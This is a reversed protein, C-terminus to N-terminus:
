LTSPVTDETFGCSMLGIMSSVAYERHPAAVQAQVVADRLVDVLEVVRPESLQRTIVALREQNVQARALRDRQRVAEGGDRPLVGRVENGHVQAGVRRQWPHKEGGEGCQQAHPHRQKRRAPAQPYQKALPLRPRRCEYLGSHKSGLMVLRRLTGEGAREGNDGTAGRITGGSLWCPM